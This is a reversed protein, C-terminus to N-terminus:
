SRLDAEAAMGDLTTTVETATAGDVGQPATRLDAVVGDHEDGIFLADFEGVLGVAALREGCAGQTGGKPQFAALRSAVGHAVHETEFGRLPVIGSDRSAM